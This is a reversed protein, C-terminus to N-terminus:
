FALMWMQNLSNNVSSRGLDQWESSYLREWAIVIFNGNPLVTIDHHHQNITSSIDYRYLLDGEWNYIDVRGGVGGAEM